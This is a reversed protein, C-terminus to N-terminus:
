DACIFKQEAPLTCIASYRLPKGKVSEWTDPPDYLIITFPKCSKHESKAYFSVKWAHKSTAEQQKGSGSFARSLEYTSM